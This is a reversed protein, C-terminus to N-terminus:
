QAQVPLMITRNILEYPQSAPSESFIEYCILESIKYGMADVYRDNFALVYDLTTEITGTVPFEAYKREPLTIIDVGKTARSDAKVSIGALYRCKDPATYFPMDLWVGFFKTDPSILDRPIAWKIIDKFAQTINERKFITTQISAIQVSNNHKIVPPVSFIIDNVREKSTCIRDIWYQTDEPNSTKGTKQFSKSIMYMDDCSMERLEEATVNFYDRFARSFVSPSSFGSIQAIESVPMDRFARLYHAAKEIRLRIIYQKPSEFMAETFIKRFHLTSYNAVQALTELSLEDTLNQNIYHLVKLISEKYEPKIQQNDLNLKLLLWFYSNSQLVYLKFDSIGTM